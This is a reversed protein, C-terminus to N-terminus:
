IPRTDQPGMGAFVYERVSAKESFVSLSWLEHLWLGDKM